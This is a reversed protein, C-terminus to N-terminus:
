LLAESDERIWIARDNKQTAAKAKTDVPQEASGSAEDAPFM